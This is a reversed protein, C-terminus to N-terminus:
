AVNTCKLYNDYAANYLCKYIMYWGYEGFHKDIERNEIAKVIRDSLQPRRAQYPYELRHDLIKLLGRLHYKEHDVMGEANLKEAIVMGSFYFYKFEDSQKDPQVNYFNLYKNIKDYTLNLIDKYNRDVVGVWQENMPELVEEPIRGEDTAVAVMAKQIEELTQFFIKQDIEFRHM